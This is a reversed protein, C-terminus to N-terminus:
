RDTIAPPGDGSAPKKKGALQLKFSEELRERAEQMGVCLHWAAIGDYVRDTDDAITVSLFSHHQWYLTHSLNQCYSGSRGMPLRELCAVGGSSCEHAHCLWYRDRPLVGVKNRVQATMEEKRLEMALIRAETQRRELM